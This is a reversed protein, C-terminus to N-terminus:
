EKESSGFHNFGQKAFSIPTGEREYMLTQQADETISGISVLPRRFRAQFAQAVRDYHDPHLTVLLCYDEGGTAAIEEASWGYRNSLRKLHPDVPIRDVEVRAGVESAEMIRHLDSDIGDSVDMM